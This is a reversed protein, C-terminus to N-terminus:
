PLKSPELIELDQLFQSETSTATPMRLEMNNVLNQLFQGAHIPRLKTNEALVVGNLLHVEAAKQAKKALSRVQTKKSPPYSM